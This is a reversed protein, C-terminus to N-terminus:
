QAVGPPRKMQIPSTPTKPQMGRMQQMTNQQMQSKGQALRNKMMAVQQPNPRGASLKQIVEDAIQSATKKM